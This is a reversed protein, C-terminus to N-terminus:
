QKDGQDVHQAEVAEAEHERDEAAQELRRANLDAKLKRKAQELAFEWEDQHTESIEALLTQSKRRRLSPFLPVRMIVPVVVQTILFWGFLVAVIFEILSFFVM